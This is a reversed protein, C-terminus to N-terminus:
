RDRRLSKALRDGAFPTSALVHFPHNSDLGHFLPEIASHCESIVVVGLDWDPLRKSLALAFSSVTSQHSPRPSQWRRAGKARKALLVRLDMGARFLARLSGADRSEATLVPRQLYGQITLVGPLSAASMRRSPLISILSTSFSRCAISIPLFPRVVTHDPIARYNRKNFTVASWRGGDRPRIGSSLHEWALGSYKDRGHDLDFCAGQRQLGAFEPSVRRVFAEALDINFGDLRLLLVRRRTAM